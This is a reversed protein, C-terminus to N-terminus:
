RGVGDWEVTEETLDGAGGNRLLYMGRPSTMSFGSSMPVLVDVDGDRDVDDAVIRMADLRGGYTVFM